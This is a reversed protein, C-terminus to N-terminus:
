NLLWIRISKVGGTPSTYAGSITSGNIIAECHGSYGAYTANSLLIDAHGSALQPLFV